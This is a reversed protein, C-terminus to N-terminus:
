NDTRNNIIEFGKFENKLKNKDSYVMQYASETIKEKSNFDLILYTVAIFDMESQQDYYIVVKDMVQKDINYIFKIETVHLQDQVNESPKLNIKYYSVSKDIYKQCNTVEGFRILSDQFAAMENFGNKNIDLKGGNEIVIRRAYPIVMIGNKEDRYLSMYNSQFFSKSKSIRLDGNVVLNEKKSRPKYHIEQNFSLKFINQEPPKKFRGMKEVYDQLLTKCESPQAFSANITLTFSLLLIVRAAKIM